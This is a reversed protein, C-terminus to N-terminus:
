EAEREVIRLYLVSLILLVIALLIALASATGIRLNMFALNRILIPVVMTSNMPGGKTLIQILTFDNFNWIFELLIVVIIVSKIQPFAVYQFRQWPGAGDIEAAEMLEQSVAQLGALLMIMTFPISRWINAVVASGFATATTGLWIVNRSIIGLKLLIYNIYGFTDDLLWRWTFATVVPSVVWPTVIFVRLISRGRRIRNLLLAISFGIIVAFFASSSTFMLSNKFSLQLLSENWANRYNDLGVYERDEQMIARMDTQLSALINGILPYIVMAGVLVMAPIVYLYPQISVRFFRTLMIRKRVLRKNLLRNAWRM